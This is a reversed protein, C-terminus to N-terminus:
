LSHMRFFLARGNGAHSSLPVSFIVILTVFSGSPTVRCGSKSM